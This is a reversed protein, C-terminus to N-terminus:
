NLKIDNLKEGKESVRLKLESCQPKTEPTNDLKIKVDKQVEEKQNNSGIIKNLVNGQSSNENPHSNEIKQPIIPMNTTPDVKGEELEEKKKNLGNTIEKPFNMTNQPKKEKRKQQMMEFKKFNDNDVATEKKDEKPKVSMGPMEMRRPQDNFGYRLLPTAPAMKPTTGSPNWPSECTDKLKRGAM